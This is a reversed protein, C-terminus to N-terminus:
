GRIARDNGDFFHCDAPDIQLPIRDGTRCAHQGPLVVTLQERGFSPRVHLM